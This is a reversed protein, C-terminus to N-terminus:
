RVVKFLRRKVYPPSVGNMLSNRPSLWLNVSNYGDINMGIKSLEPVDSRTAGPPWRPVHPYNECCRQSYVTVLSRM